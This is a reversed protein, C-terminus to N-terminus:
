RTSRAAAKPVSTPARPAPTLPSPSREPRQTLSGGTCSRPSCCTPSDVAPTPRPLLEPRQECGDDIPVSGIPREFSGGALQLVRRCAVERGGREPRSGCPRNRRDGRQQLPGSRRPHHAGIQRQGVQDHKEAGSRGVFCRRLHAPAVDLDDEGPQGAFRTALNAQVWRAARVRAAPLVSTIQGTGPSSPDVMKAQRSRGTLTQGYTSPRGSSRSSTLWRVAAACRRARNCRDASAM